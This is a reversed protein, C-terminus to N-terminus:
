ARFIYKLQEVTFINIVEMIQETTFVTYIKKDMMSLNPGLVRDPPDTYYIRFHSESNPWKKLIPYWYTLSGKFRRAAMGMNHPHIYIGYNWMYIWNQANTLNVKGSEVLKTILGRSDAATQIKFFISNMIKLFEKLDFKYIGNTQKEIFGPFLIKFYPLFKDIIKNIQDKSLKPFETVNKNENQSKVGNITDPWIKDPYRPDTLIVDFVNIASKRGSMKTINDYYTRWPGVIGNPMFNFLMLMVLRYNIGFDLPGWELNQIKLYRYNLEARTLLGSFEPYKRLICNILEQKNLKSISKCKELEYLRKREEMKEVFEPYGDYEEKINMYQFHMQSMNELETNYVKKDLELNDKLRNYRENTYKELTGVMTYFKSNKGYDRYEKNIKFWKGKSIKLNRLARKYRDITNEYLIKLSNPIAEFALIDIPKALKTPLIEGSYESSYIVPAGEPPPAAAYYLIEKQKKTLHINYPINNPTTLYKYMNIWFPKHATENFPIDEFESM